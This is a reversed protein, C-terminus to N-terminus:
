SESKKEYVDFELVEEIKVYNKKIYEIVEFHNQAGLSETHRYILYLCKDSTNLLDQVTNTGINGVLLMDWNKEYYDIPIKYAMASDDTIRIRYGQERKKNIYECISIINKEAEEDIPINEYYNVSSLHSDENLPLFALVSLVSVFLAVMTCICKEWLKYKKEEVFMCFIPVLVIFVCVLHYADFLPYTVMLWALAYLVFSIKPTHSIDKHIKYLMFIFAIVIFTIYLVFFPARCILEFPTTRHVFTTIGIVAYDFFDNLAGVCLMYVLYFITPIISLFVRAIQKRYNMKYKVTNFICIIFNVVMFMAGINQKVLPLIGVLLGIITHKRICDKEDNLEIELILLVILASLYNYNYIYFPLTVCAVFLSAILGIFVSNTSKKCLHYVFAMIAFMLFCGVVRHVFLGDGLVAMFIAPIYASLPTQIISFDRYPVMGNTINKAFSYNWLEDGSGFAKLLLIASFVAFTLYPIVNNMKQKM